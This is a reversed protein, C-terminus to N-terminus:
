SSIIISDLEFGHKNIFFLISSQVFSRNFRETKILQSLKLLEIQNLSQIFILRTLVLLVKTISNYDDFNIAVRGGGTLIWLNSSSISVPEHTFSPYSVGFQNYAVIRFSYSSSPMLNQYPVSYERLPGQDTRAVTQWQDEEAFYFLYIFSCM